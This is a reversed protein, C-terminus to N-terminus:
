FLTNAELNSFREADETPSIRLRSSIFESPPLSELQGEEQKVEIKVDDLNEDSTLYVRLSFFQQGKHYELKLDKLTRRKNSKLNIPFLRPDLAKELKLKLESSQENEDITNIQIVLESRKEYFLWECIDEVDITEQRVIGRKFNLSLPLEISNPGSLLYIAELFATKGINNMGGILNVRELQELTLNKFCRFNKITISKFM